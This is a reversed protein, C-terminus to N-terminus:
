LCFFYEIANNDLDDISLSPIIEGEYSYGHIERQMEEIIEPSAKKTSSGFRIFSSNIIGISKLYYPKNAGGMVQLHLINKGNINIISIYPSIMPRISDYIMNSIKEELLLPNEIGIVERERDSIGIILEGGAGNSFAIITKLLDAKLPM